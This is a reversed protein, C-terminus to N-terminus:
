SWLKGSEESKGVVHEHTNLRNDTEKPPLAQKANTITFQVSPVRHIDGMALSISVRPLVVDM